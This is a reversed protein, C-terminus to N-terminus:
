RWLVHLERLFQDPFGQPFELYGGILGQKGLDGTKVLPLVRFPYDLDELPDLLFGVAPQDEAAAHCRVVGLSHLDVILDHFFRYGLFQDLVFVQDNEGGLVLDQDIGQLPDRRHNDLFGETFPEPERDGFGTPFAGRHNGGLDAPDGVLDDMFLGPKEQFGVVVLTKGADDDVQQLVGAVTFFRNGRWPVRACFKRSVRWRM